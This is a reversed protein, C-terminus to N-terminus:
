CFEERSKKSQRIINMLVWVEIPKRRSHSVFTTLVHGDTDRKKLVIHKGKRVIKFDNNQLIKIVKRYPLPRLKKPM